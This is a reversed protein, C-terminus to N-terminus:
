PRHPQLKGENARATMGREAIVAMALM